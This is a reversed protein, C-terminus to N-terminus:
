LQALQKRIDAADTYNPDIKLVREFHQRALAPKEAKEYALGLHYHYTPNEAENNKASLKMAEEFMGIASEYVGKRYLALGLTDAVESSEPM